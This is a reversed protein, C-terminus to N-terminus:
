TATDPLLSLVLKRKKARTQRFLRAARAYLPQFTHGM